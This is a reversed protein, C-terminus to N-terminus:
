TKLRLIDRRRPAYSVGKISTMHFDFQVTFYYILLNYIFTIPRATTMNTHQLEDGVPVSTLSSLGDTTLPKMCSRGAKDSEYTSLRLSSTQQLTM